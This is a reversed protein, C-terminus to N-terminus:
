LQSEQSSEQLYLCSRETMERKSIFNAECYSFVRRKPLSYFQNIDGVVVLTRLELHWCCRAYLLLLFMKFFISLRPILADEVENGPDRESGARPVLNTLGVLLSLSPGLSTSLSKIAIVHSPVRALSPVLFVFGCYIECYLNFQGLESFLSSNKVKLLYGIKRQLKNLIATLICNIGSSVCGVKWSSFPSCVNKQVTNRISLM